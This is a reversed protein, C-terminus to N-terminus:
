VRCTKLNFREGSFYRSLFQDIKGKMVIKNWNRDVSKGYWAAKYMLQRLFESWSVDSIAKSLKRSRLMGKTNLDEICIIDHNKIIDTSRKHLFDLRHNTVQEHLRAAKIKQKQYNKAQDLSVDRRKAELGRRALKRQERALKKEMTRTLQNNDVKRGTSLIAFDAIGLDIGVASITKEKPEIHQEVKKRSNKFRVWGLKPLKILSGDIMNVPVQNKRIVTTYKQM